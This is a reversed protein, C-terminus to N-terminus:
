GDKNDVFNINSKKHDKGTITVVMTATPFDSTLMMTPSKTEYM